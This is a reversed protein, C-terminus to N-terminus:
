LVERTYRVVDRIQAPALDNKWAPMIGKGNSVLAIEDSIDPFDGVVAGALKPGIGGQGNVGHCRTCNAAWVKRGEVLGADQLQTGHLAPVDSASSSGGGGCGAALLLTAAALVPVVRSWWRAGVAM